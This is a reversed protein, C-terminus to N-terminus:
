LRTKKCGAAWDRIAKRGPMPQLEVEIRYLGDGDYDCGCVRGFLPVPEDDILHVAMVLMRNLYCM